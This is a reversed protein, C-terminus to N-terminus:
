KGVLTECKKDEFLLLRIALCIKSNALELKVNKDEKHGNVESFEKLLYKDLM